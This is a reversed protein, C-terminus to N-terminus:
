RGGMFPVQYNLYPNQQFPTFQPNFQPVQGNQWPLNGGGGGGGNQNGQSAASILSAAGLGIRAAAGPNAAIWSAANGLMGDGGLLSSPNNIAGQMQNLLSGPGIGNQSVGMGGQGGMTDPDLGGSGFGGYGGSSGGGMDSMAPDFLGGGADNAVGGNSAVRSWYSDPLGGSAAASGGGGMGGTADGLTDVWGGAGAGAAGGAGTLMPFLQSGGLATGLFGYFM